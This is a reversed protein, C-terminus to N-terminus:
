VDGSHVVSTREKAIVPFPRRGDITKEQLLCSRVYVIVRFYLMFRKNQLQTLDLTYIKLSDRCLFAIKQAFLSMFFAHSFSLGVHLIHNRPLAHINNCWVVRFEETNQLLSFGCINNILFVVLLKDLTTYAGVYFWLFILFTVARVHVLESM